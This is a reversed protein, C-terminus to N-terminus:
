ITTSSTLWIEKTPEYALADKPTGDFSIEGRRLLLVRDCSRVVEPENSLIVLTWQQRKDALQAVIKRRTIPELRDLLNGLVLLRPRRVIARAVLLRVRVSGPVNLGEAVMQTDYGGPQESVWASLQAVGLAWQVDAFSVDPHGLCINDIYLWLSFSASATSRILKTHHFAAQITGVTPERLATLNLIGLRASWCIMVMGCGIAAM